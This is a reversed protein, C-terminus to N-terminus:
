PDNDCEPRASNLNCFPLELIEPPTVNAPAPLATPRPTNEEEWWLLFVAKYHAIDANAEIRVHLATPLYPSIQVIPPDMVTSMDTFRNDIIVKYKLASNPTPPDRPIPELYYDRVRVNYPSDPATSFSNRNCLEVVKPTVRVAPEQTKPVRRISDAPHLELWGGHGVYTNFWCEHKVYDPTRAGPNILDYHLHATDEVLAGTIIVYDGEQLDPENVPIGGPKVVNYPWFVDPWKDAEPDTVWGAPVQNNHWSKHWANLEITMLDTGPLLFTGADPQSGGTLPIHINPNLISTFEDFWRGTMVATALPPTSSNYNREIFGNDLWIDYHWDETAPPNENGINRGPGVLWGALTVNNAILANDGGTSVMRADSKQVP